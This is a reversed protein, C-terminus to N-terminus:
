WVGKSICDSCQYLLIFEDNKVFLLQDKTLTYQKGCQGCTRTVQAVCNKCVLYEKIIQIHNHEDVIGYEVLYEEAGNSADTEAGCFVCVM